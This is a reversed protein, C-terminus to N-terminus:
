DVQTRPLRPLSAAEISGVQTEGIMLCSTVIVCTAKDDGVEMPSEYKKHFQWNSDDAQNHNIQMQGIIAFLIRFREVDHPKNVFNRIGHIRSRMPYRPTSIEFVMTRPKSRMSKAVM